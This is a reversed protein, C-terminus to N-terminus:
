ITYQIQVHAPAIRDMLCRIPSLSPVEISDCSPRHGFRFQGFRPAHFNSIVTPAVNPEGTHVKIVLGLASTGGFTESRHSFRSTGFRAGCHQSREYCEATWGLRAIIDNFYECRAGGIARVKTCLDPFPDCPDPLGYEVMWQDTTESQTQCWFELRLACLRTELYNRVVGVAQWFRYLISGPIPGSENTQWARGRPLLALTADISEQVTPCHWPIPAFAKSM